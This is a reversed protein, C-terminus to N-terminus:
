PGSGVHDDLVETQENGQDGLSVLSVVIWEPEAETELTIM